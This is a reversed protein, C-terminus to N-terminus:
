DKMIIVGDLETTSNVESQWLDNSVASFETTNPNSAPNDTALYVGCVHESGDCSEESRIYNTYNKIASETYTSPQYRYFYTTKKLDNKGTFASFGFAFAAIMSGLALKKITNM